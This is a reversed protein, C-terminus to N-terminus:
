RGFGGTPTDRSSLSVRALQNRTLEDGIFGALLALVQGGIPIVIAHLGTADTARLFAGVEECSPPPPVIRAVAPHSLRALHLSRALLADAGAAGVLATLEDCLAPLASVLMSEDRRELQLAAVFEKTWDDLSSGNM